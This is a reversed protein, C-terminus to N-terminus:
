YVYVVKTYIQDKVGVVTFLIYTLNRIRGRAFKTFAIIGPNTKHKTNQRITM